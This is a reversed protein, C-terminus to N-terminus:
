LVRLLQDRISDSVVLDQLFFSFVINLYNRFTKSKGLHQIESIFLEPDSYL